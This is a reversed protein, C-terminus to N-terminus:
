QSIVIEHPVIKKMRLTNKSVPVDDKNISNTLKHCRPLSGSIGEAGFVGKQVM